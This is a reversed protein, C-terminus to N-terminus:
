ARLRPQGRSALGPVLDAADSVFTVFRGTGSLRPLSGVGTSAGGAAATSILSTTNAVTDRLWVDGCGPGDTCSPPQSSSVFAVYRGDNSISPSESRRTAAAPLGLDVRVVSAPAGTNAVAVVQGGSTADLASFAVARGDSSVSIPGQVSWDGSGLNGAVIFNDNGNM